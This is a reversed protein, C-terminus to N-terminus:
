MVSCLVSRVRPTAAICYRAPDLTCESHSMRRNTPGAAPIMLDVASVDVSRARHIQYDERHHLSSWAWVAPADPRQPFVGPPATLPRGGYAAVCVETDEDFDRCFIANVDEGLTVWTSNRLMRLAGDRGLGVICDTPPPAYIASVLDVSTSHEAVVALTHTGEMSLELLGVLGKSLGVVLRWKKDGITAVDLLSTAQGAVLAAAISVHEFFRYRRRKREYVEIATEYLVVLVDDDKGCWAVDRARRKVDLEVSSDGKWVTAALRVVALGRAGAIAVFQGSPSVSALRVPPARALAVPLRVAAWHWNDLVYVRDVGCLAARAHFRGACVVRAKSPGCRVFPATVLGNTGHWVTLMAGGLVWAIGGVRAEQNQPKVVVTTTTADWVSWTDDGRAALVCHQDDDPLWALGEFRHGVAVTRAFVVELSFGRSGPSGEVGYVCLADPWAVALRGDFDWTGRRVLDVAQPAQGGHDIMLERGRWAAATDLPVAMAGKHLSAVAVALPGRTQACLVDNANGDTTSGRFYFGHVADAFVFKLTADFVVFAAGSAFPSPRISVLGLVPEVTKWSQQLSVACIPPADDFRAQPAAARLGWPAKEFPASADLVARKSRVVRYFAATGNGDEDRVLVALAGGSSCLSAPGAAVPPAAAEGIQTAGHPSCAWVVVRKRTLAAVLASDLSCCAVVEEETARWRSPAAFPLVPM